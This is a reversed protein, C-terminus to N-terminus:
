NEIPVKEAHDIVLVELPEKTAQLRLGLQERVATFITPDSANDRGTNEGGAPPTATPADPAWTLTIDFQGVMGTRDVVPRDTQLSLLKAFESLSAHRATIRGRGMNINTEGEDKSKTIKPGNKDVALTFVRLEKKERHLTLKFREVLLPQLMRMLQDDGVPKAAKAVIEYRESDLWEPGFIQYPKVGYAASILNKLTENQATLKGPQTDIGVPITGSAPKARKVSAVEFVPQSVSAPQSQAHVQSTTVAGFLFPVVVSLVATVALLLKRSFSLRCAIRGAMISGIRGKLGAGTIGSVCALPSEVYLKCVNLIGAAYVQPRNGLRLVEEDCAREREDVLRAGLWWVLPHFWFAAQVAMHIAATLNDRRRVHCLEHALIAELQAENLRAGIGEPLLLIPRLIGFVGPEALGPVSMIPVASEVGKRIRMPTARGRLERIRKWRIGWCIAIAAFGGFWLVIAVFAFYARNAGSTTQTIEAGVAPITVMPRVQEAVAVWGTEARPAAARRPVFAGLGVLLSFPILFKVSAIFWVSYRVRASNKRLALTLFWAVGVFLTSQWLHAVFESIM